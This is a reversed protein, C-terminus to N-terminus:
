FFKIILKKLEIRNIYKPPLYIKYSINEFIQYIGLLHRMQIMQKIQIMITKHIYPRLDIQRVKPEM